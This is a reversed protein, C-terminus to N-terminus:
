EGGSRYIQRGLVIIVETSLQVHIGAVSLLERSSASVAKEIQSAPESTRSYAYVHDSAMRDLWTEASMDCVNVATRGSMLTTM